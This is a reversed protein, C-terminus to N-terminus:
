DITERKQIKLPPNSKSVIYEMERAVKDKQAALDQV